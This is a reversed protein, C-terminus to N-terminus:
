LALPFGLRLGAGETGYNTIPRFDFYIEWAVGLRQTTTFFILHFSHNETKLLPILGSFANQSIHDGNVGLLARYEFFFQM